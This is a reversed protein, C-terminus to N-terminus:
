NRNRRRLIMSDGVRNKRTPVGLAPKGKYTKPHKMGISSNGEGGGHPHSNPAMALGRVSPRRGLHRSRGAKGLKLNKHEPNSLVGITAKCKSLVYRMEGSPLRLLTKSEEHGMIQASAGASKVLKSGFGPTTEIAHVITGNPMEGIPKTNGNELPVKSGDGVIDGVKLGQPSLIYKKQGNQYEVLAIRATRNPDYEITRVIASDNQNRVFDIIRYSRKHGGGRRRVTIKGTNNRGAKKRLGVVLPKHPKKTTIEEFNDVMSNRRGPSTPKYHKLAM